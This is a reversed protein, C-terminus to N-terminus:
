KVIIQDKMEAIKDLIKQCVEEVTVNPNDAIFEGGAALVHGGGNMQMALERVNVVNPSARFSISYKVPSEARVVFGWKHGEIKRLFNALYFASAGKSGVLDLNQVDQWSLFSYTLGPIGELETNVTNKILVKVASFSKETIREVIDALPQIDLGSKNLIEEAVGLVRSRSADVYKFNGTDAIIGYMLDEAVDKDLDTDAFFLEYVLQAAASATTDQFVLDFKDPEGPHHDICISKTKSSDFSDVSQGFRKYNSGDMFIALDAESSISMFDSSWELTKQEDREKWAGTPEGTMIVRADKGLVRSVYAYVGLVSAVADDDPKEHATIYIKEAANVMEDFRQKFEAQDM